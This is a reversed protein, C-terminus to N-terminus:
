ECDVQSLSLQCAPEESLDYYGRVLRSSRKEEVKFICVDLIRYLFGLEGEEDVGHCGASIFYTGPLFRNRFLFSVNCLTGAPICEISDGISNSTMGFLEIGEVSRIMMGLNIARGDKFFRAIYNLRYVKDPALVNVSVGSESFIKVDEICVGKSVLEVTSTSKLESEFRESSDVNHIEINPAHDASVEISIGADDNEELIGSADMHLIEDLVAGRKDEPAYILRQYFAVVEKPRGSLLRYGGDLLIARDCLHIISGASHSVFLLTCGASKLQALKGFCKRQFAEDGVALAEDIVLIDPQVNIALSFALRIYMGSSYTKIPQDIFGELESFRIIEPIAERVQAENMGLLSAGLILNERGSFESNFGAGLELIAAVRGKVEVSGSTPELVGCILQLLTSKGSGNKGIIGVTEGRGVKFSVDTLANFGDFYKGKRNLSQLLRHHPRHYVRYVKTLNEVNIVVDSDHSSLM